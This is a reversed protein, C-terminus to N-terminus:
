GLLGPVEAPLQLSVLTGEAYFEEPGPNHLDVTLTAGADVVAVSYRVLPGVFALSVVRAPVGREGDLTLSLAEPRLVLSVTGAAQRPPRRSRLTTGFIRVVAGDPRTEVVEAEVINSLGVFEAVFRDAPRRYLERPEGVQVLRGRNMVAVQDAISFAEEQDHTVYVSTIGLRRQLGRIESRMRVRLQADLNSLPEDFLLVKPHTVLARALAVRQQQGGSLQPPSKKQQGHLEMLTIAEEVRKEIEAKPTRRARLGYAINDYVSMHPFLAYSQFVM